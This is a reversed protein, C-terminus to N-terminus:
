TIPWIIIYSIFTPTCLQGRMWVTLCDGFKTRLGLFFDLGWFMQPTPVEVGHHHGPNWLLGRTCPVFCYLVKRFLIFLNHLEVWQAELEINVIWKQTSDHRIPLLFSIQFSRTPSHSSSFLQASLLLHCMCKWCASHRPLKLHGGLLHCWHVRRPTIM